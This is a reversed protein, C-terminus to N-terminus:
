GCCKKFKAGSGCPCPDNRGIKEKKKARSENADDRNLENRMWHAMIEFETPDKRLAQMAKEGEELLKIEKNSRSYAEMVAEQVIMGFKVRFKEPLVFLSTLAAVYNDAPKKLDMTRHLVEQQGTGIPRMTAWDVVYPRDRIYVNSLHAQLHAYGKDHLERLAVVFMLIKPASRYWYDMVVQVTNNSSALLDNVMEAALRKGEPVTVAMFGTGNEFRGYAEVRPVRMKTFASRSIEQTKLVKEELEDPTYTGLARYKPQSNVISNGVAYSTTMLTGTMSDMFNEESPPHFESSPIHLQGAHATMRRYGIGSIQLVMGNARPVLIDRGGEGPYIGPDVEWSALALTKEIESDTLTSTSPVDMEIKFRGQYSRREVDKLIPEMIPHSKANINFRESVNIFSAKNECVIILLRKYENIASATTTRPKIAPKRTGAFVSHLLCDQRQAGEEVPSKLQPVQM